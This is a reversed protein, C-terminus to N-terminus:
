QGTLTDRFLTEVITDHFFPRFKRIKINERDPHVRNTLLVIVLEKQPDIWFSTGAYGLHGISQKCFYNGSSSGASPSDFGLCWSQNPYQRQLGQKLMASWSYLYGERDTLWQNMIAECLHHVGGISGFLGAHGAIGNMLWCHEDHVESRIIRGRWACGETAAFEKLDPKEESLYFVEKEIGLPVAIREKFNSEIGKGTIKEIIHGLVMFGLDSYICEIGPRGALPERIIQELLKDKYRTKMEPFSAAAFEKFYEKYGIFGSSHSLLLSLPINEKEHPLQISDKFFESLPTDLSIQKENILSFLILTTSLAKSLSALDFFTATSVKENPFRNDKIGAVAFSTQRGSISGWSVAAAAGPFVGETVGTVLLQAIINDM